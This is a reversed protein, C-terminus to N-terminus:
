YLGFMGRLEKEIKQFNLVLVPLYFAPFSAVRLEFGVVGREFGGEIDLFGSNEQDLDTTHHRITNIRAM